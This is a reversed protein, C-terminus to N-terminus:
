VPYGGRLEWWSERATQFTLVIGAGHWWDQTSGAIICFHLNISEFSLKSLFFFTETLKFIIICVQAFPQFLKDRNEKTIGIGTDEIEIMLMPVSVETNIPTVATSSHAGMELDVVFDSVRERWSSLECPSRVSCENDNNQHRTSYKM